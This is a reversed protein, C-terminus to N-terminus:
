GREGERAPLPSHGHAAAAAPDGPAGDPAHEPRAGWAGEGRAPSPGGRPHRSVAPTDRGTMVIGHLAAAFTPASKGGPDAERIHGAMGCASVARDAM